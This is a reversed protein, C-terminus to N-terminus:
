LEVAHMIPTNILTTVASLTDLNGPGTWIGWSIMVGYVLTDVFAPNALYITRGTTDATSEDVASATFPAAFQNIHMDFGDRMFVGNMTSTSPWGAGGFAVCNLSNWTACGAGQYKFDATIYNAYFNAGLTINGGVSTNWDVDNRMQLCTVWSQGAARLWPYDFKIALRFEADAALPSAAPGAATHTMTLTNATQVAPNAEDLLCCGQYKIPERETFFGWRGETGYIAIGKTGVALDTAGNVHEAWFAGLERDDGSQTIRKLTYLGLGENTVVESIRPPLETLGIALGDPTDDVALDDGGMRVSEKDALMGFERALGTEVRTGNHNLRTM